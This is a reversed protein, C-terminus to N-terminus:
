ERPEPERSKGELPLKPQESGGFGERALEDAAALAQRLAWRESPNSRMFEKFFSRRVYERSVKPM